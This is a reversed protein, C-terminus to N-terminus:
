FRNLFKRIRRVFGTHTDVKPKNTEPENSRHHYRRYLRKWSERRELAMNRQHSFVPEIPGLRMWKAPARRVRDGRTVKEFEKDERKTERRPLQPNWPKYNPNNHHCRHIPRFSGQSSPRRPIRPDFPRFSFGTFPLATKSSESEGPVEISEVTVEKAKPKPTKPGTTEEKPKPKFTKPETTTEDPEWQILTAPKHGPQESPLLIGNADAPNKGSLPFSDDINIETTSGFPSRASSFRCLFLFSCAIITSTISSATIRDM